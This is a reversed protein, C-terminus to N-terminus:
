TLKIAGAPGRPLGDSTELVVANREGGEVAMRPTRSAAAARHPTRTDVCLNNRRAHVHKNVAPAAGPLFASVPDALLLAVISALSLAAATKM